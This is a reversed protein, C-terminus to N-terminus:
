TDDRCTEESTSALTWTALIEAAARHPDLRLARTDEIIRKLKPETQIASSLRRHVADRVLELVHAEARESRRRQLSGSSEAHEHHRKIAEWLDGVGRGDTAVTEVIPTDWESVPHGLTLMARLEAVTQKAGPRDAMNVVMVDAIELIGAKLTQVSDGLGPAVLVVVTDAARVVDVENQGVGVTEIVIVDFGYADLLRVADRTARALGGLSHRAAMSRIFVGADGAHRNMRVRDGLIAGGTFPSSPDVAVVAITSGEARVREILKDTLTSKGAGAPGTIGVVHARNTPTLGELAGAADGNEIRTLMRALDRATVPAKTPTDTLVVAMARSLVIFRDNAFACRGSERSADEM